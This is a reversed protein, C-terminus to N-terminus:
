KIEIMKVAEREAEKTFEEPSFNGEDDRCGFYGTGIQMFIDGGGALHHDSLGGEGTNHAFGGIKAGKNLALIANASLAGFSMASINLRSACYPQKCEPGGVTIRDEVESVHKPSLSHLVWEYGVNRIDRETGFPVTDRVKKARQYIITRTERDFPRESRDDAVFYQQIEPRFFELFFRVHGLIPFNRCISHKRQVLDYLGLLALLILLAYFYNQIGWAMSIVFLVVLLIVFGIYWNRRM